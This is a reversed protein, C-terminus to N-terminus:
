PQDFAPGRAIRIPGKPKATTVPEGGQTIVVRRATSLRRAAERAPEMLDRWAGDDGAVRRAADSPCITGSREALLSLIAAELDDDVRWRGSREIM